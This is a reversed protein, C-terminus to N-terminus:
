KTVTVFVEVPHIFLSVTTIVTLGNGLALAPASLVIQLPADVEMPADATVPFVYEHVEEGVPNVEVLALGDTLGVADV